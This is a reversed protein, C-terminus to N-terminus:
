FCRFVDIRFIALPLESTRTVLYTIWHRIFMPSPDEQHITGHKRLEPFFCGSQEKRHIEIVQWRLQEGECLGACTRWYKIRSRVQALFNFQSAINPLFHKSVRSPSSLPLAQINRSRQAGCTGEGSYNLVAMSTLLSSRCRQKLM